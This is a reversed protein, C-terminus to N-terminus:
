TLGQITGGASEIQKRTQKTVSVGKVTLKKTVKHNGIIKVTEAGHSIFGARILASVTVTEGNSFHNLATVPVTVTKAHISTFGRLKPTAQILYKMGVRRLGKRGGQRARQGKTGKGATTGKGSANGRGLRKSSHRAGSAPRLNHLSIPM